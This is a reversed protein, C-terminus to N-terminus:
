RPTAPARRSASWRSWRGRTARRSAARRARAPLLRRAPVAARDRLAPHASLFLERLDPGGLSRVMGWHWVAEVEGPPLADFGGRSFVVDLATDRVKAMSLQHHEGFEIAATYPDGGGRWADLAGQVGAPARHWRLERVRLALAGPEGRALEACRRAYADALARSACHLEPWATSGSVSRCTTRRPARGPRDGGRIEGLLGFREAQVNHQHITELNEQRASVFHRDTLFDLRDVVGRIMERVCDEVFRPRRHAKEVVAGEDSRKMLEYIESSM